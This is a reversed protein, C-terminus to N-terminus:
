VKEYTDNNRVCSMMNEHTWIKLHVYTQVYYMETHLKLESMITKAHVM